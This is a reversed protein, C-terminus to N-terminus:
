IEGEGVGRGDLSLSIKDLLYKHLKTTADPTLPNIMQGTYQEPDPAQFKPNGGYRKPNPIECGKATGWHAYM